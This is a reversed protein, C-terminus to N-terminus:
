AKREARTKGTYVRVETLWLIQRKHLLRYTSGWNKTTIEEFAEIAETLDIYTRKEYWGSNENHSADGECRGQAGAKCQHEIIYVDTEM